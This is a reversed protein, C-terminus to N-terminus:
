STYNAKVENLRIESGKTQSGSNKMKLKIETQTKKLFEIKKNFEVKM